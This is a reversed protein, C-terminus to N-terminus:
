GEVLIIRKDGEVIEPVYDQLMVHRRGGETLLELMARLNGDGGSSVLVGHGGNGDWPKLVVREPRARAWAIGQDLDCTVLTAPCLHPWQLAYLKENASRLAEPDNLVLTEPGALDLLYTCFVYEIDYPPDKRMWVVQYASLPRREPTAPTFFPPESAVSVPTVLAWTEGKELWLQGPTTYAVPWGRQTAELMLAYTSDGEVQIREIPDMVFLQKM